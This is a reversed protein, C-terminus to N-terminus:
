CCFALGRGSGNCVSKRVLFSYPQKSSPALDRNCGNSVAIAYVGAVRSRQFLLLVDRM